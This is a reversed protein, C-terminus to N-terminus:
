PCSVTPHDDTGGVGPHVLRPSPSPLVEVVDLSGLVGTEVPGQLGLPRLRTEGLRPPSLRVQVDDVEGGSGEVPGCVELGM